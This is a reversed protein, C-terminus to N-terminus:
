ASTGSIKNPAPGASASGVTLRLGEELRIRPEFGLNERANTIDALSHLIDGTRAPQYDPEIDDRGLIQRVLQFLENISVKEGNAINIVKGIGRDSEAALM